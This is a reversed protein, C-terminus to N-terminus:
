SKRKIDFNKAKGYNGYRWDPPNGSFDQFPSMDQKCAPCLAGGFVLGDDIAWWKGCRCHHVEPGTDIEFKIPPIEDASKISPPIVSISEPIGDLCLEISNPIGEITFPFHVYETKQYIPINVCEGNQYISLVNDIEPLPEIEYYNKPTFVFSM